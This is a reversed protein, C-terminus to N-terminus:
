LLSLTVKSGSFNHALLHAASSLGHAEGGIVLAVSKTSNTLQLNDYSFYSLPLDRYQKLTNKDLYSSDRKQINGKATVEVTETPKSCSEGEQQARRWNKAKDERGATITSDSSYIEKKLSDALIVTTGQTVFNEPIQDWEVNSVLKLRFHAGAAARLVKSDWVDVCEVFHFYMTFFIM